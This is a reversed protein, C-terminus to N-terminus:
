DLLSILDLGLHRELSRIVSIDSLRDNVIMDKVKNVISYKLENPTDSITSCLNNINSKTYNSEDMLFEYKEFVKTIGFKNIVREDLPKLWMNRFYGKHNKWMNKLTEFTMLEVHGVEDWEYMDGTKNDKYSVNPILSVVDVEDSDNLQELRVKNVENKEVNVEKVDDNETMSFDAVVTEVATAAKNVSKTTVKAMVLDV